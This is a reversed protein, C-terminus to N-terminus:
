ASALTKDLVDKLTLKSLGHSSVSRARDWARTNAPRISRCVICERLLISRHLDCIWGAGIQQYVDFRTM